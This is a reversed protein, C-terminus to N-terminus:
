IMIVILTMMLHTTTRGQTSIKARPLGEMNEKRISRLVRTKRISIKMRVIKIKQMPVNQPLTALKVVNLAYSLDHGM